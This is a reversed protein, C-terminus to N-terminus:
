NCDEYRSLIYLFEDVLFIDLTRLERCKKHFIAVAERFSGPNKFPSLKWDGLPEILDVKKLPNGVYKHSRTLIYIHIYIYWHINTSKINPNLPYYGHYKGTIVMMVSGISGNSISIKKTFNELKRHANFQLIMGPRVYITLCVM